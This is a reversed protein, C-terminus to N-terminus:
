HWVSKSNAWTLYRNKGADGIELSVSRSKIPEISNTKPDLIFIQDEKDNRTRIVVNNGARTLVRGSRMKTVLRFPKDPIIGRQVTDIDKYIINWKQNKGNHKKWVIVNQGEKDRGGSVDMALGRINMVHEGRINFQQDWRGNRNETVLDRSKGGDAIDL